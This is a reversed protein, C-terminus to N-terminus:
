VVKRAGEHSTVASRMRYFWDGIQTHQLVDQFTECGEISALVGYVALDALNPRDGGCFPTRRRRLELEWTHCAEYLSERVDARLQHRRKLMKGIAYMAAAGVYVVLAREWAPFLREWDGVQSFWRFAQLAERPTRYVNPSLTHVLVDDAWRRWSRESKIDEKTRLTEKDGYMLFYKNMVDTRRRGNEDPATLPPYYSALERMGRSPDHLYSYLASVVMASDNLQQGGESLEAVVVPVKKYASWKLEKRLVPNVEIVDYSIGYYDLFARVKCCFPCTQYQYLTLTLGSDDGPV